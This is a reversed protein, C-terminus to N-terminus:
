RILAWRCISSGQGDVESRDSLFIVPVGYNEILLQSKQAFGIDCISARDAADNLINNSKLDAHCIGSNHLYSLGEAVDKLYSVARKFGTSDKRFNGGLIQKLLTMEYKKM